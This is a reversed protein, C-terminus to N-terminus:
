RVKYSRAEMQQKTSITEIDESYTRVGDNNEYSNDLKIYKTVGDLYTAKVLHKNVYDGVEVLNIIDFDHKLIENSGVFAYDNFIQCDIAYQMNPDRFENINYVKGIYQIGLSDVIRVYENISIKMEKRGLEIYTSIDEMSRLFYGIVVYKGTKDIFDEMSSDKDYYKQLKEHVKRYNSFFPIKFYIYLYRGVKEIKSPKM